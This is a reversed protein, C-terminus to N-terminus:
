ALVGPLPGQADGFRETPIGFANLMSVYLHCLKTHKPFRLHAGSAVGAGQGGVLLIPLDTPDHRNGDRLGSGYFVLTRDLLTGEGETRAELRRLLGALREVHWRNILQYQAMAEEKNEHHSLPHFGGSVGDLFSFNRSSVANGFMLSAIRTTDSALALAM